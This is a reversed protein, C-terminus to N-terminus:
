PVTQRLDQSCLSLRHEACLRLRKTLFDMTGTALGRPSPWWEANVFLHCSLVGKNVRPESENLNLIGQHTLPCLGAHDRGHGGTHGPGGWAGEAGPRWLSVQLDLAALKGKDGANRAFEEITWSPQGRKVEALETLRMDTYLPNNKLHAKLSAPYPHPSFVQEVLFSDKPQKHARHHPPVDYQRDAQLPCLPPCPPAGLGPTEHVGPLGAVRERARPGM